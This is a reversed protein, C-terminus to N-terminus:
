FKHPNLTVELLIQHKSEGAKGDFVDVERGEGGRSTSFQVLRSGPSPVLQDARGSCLCSGAGAGDALHAPETAKVVDLVLGLHRVRQAPWADVRCDLRLGHLHAIDAKGLPPWALAM